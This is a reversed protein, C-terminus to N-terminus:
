CNMVLQTSFMATNFFADVDTEEEDDDPTVIQVPAKGRRDAGLSIGAAAPAQPPIPHAV